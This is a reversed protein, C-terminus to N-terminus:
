RANATLRYTGKLKGPEVRRGHNKLRRNLKTIYSGLYSQKYRLDDSRLHGETVVDFIDAIAVDQGFPMMDYILRLKPPLDISTM